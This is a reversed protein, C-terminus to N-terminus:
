FYKKDRYELDYYQAGEELPHDFLLRDYDSTQKSLSLLLPVASRLWM